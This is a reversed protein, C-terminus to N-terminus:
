CIINYDNHNLLEATEIIVCFIVFFPCEKNKRKKM